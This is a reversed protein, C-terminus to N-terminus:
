RYDGLLRRWTTLCLINPHSAFYVSWTCCHVSCAYYCILIILNLVCAVFISWCSCYRRKRSTARCCPTPLLTMHGYLTIAFTMTVKNHIFIKIYARDNREITHSLRHIKHPRPRNNKLKRTIRKNWQINRVPCRFFVIVLSCFVNAIMVWHLVRWTSNSNLRSCALFTSCHCQTQRPQAM